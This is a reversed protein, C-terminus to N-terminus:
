LPVKILDQITSTRGEFGLTRAIGGGRQQSPTERTNIYIFFPPSNHYGPSESESERLGASLAAISRVRYAWIAVVCSLAFLYRTRGGGGEMEMEGDHPWKGDCVQCEKGPSQGTGVRNHGLPYDWTLHAGGSGCGVEKLM